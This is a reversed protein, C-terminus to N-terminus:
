VKTISAQKTTKKYQKLCQKSTKSVVAWIKGQETVQPM